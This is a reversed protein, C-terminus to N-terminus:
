WPTTRRGCWPAAASASSSGPTPRRPLAQGTLQLVAGHPASLQCARATLHAAHGLWIASPQDLAGGVQADELAVRADPRLWVGAADVATLTTRLAAASTGPGLVLRGSWRLDVLTAHGSVEHVNAALAAGPDGRRVVPRTLRVTEARYVGPALVVSTVTSRRIAEQLTAAAYRLGRGVKLEVINVGRSAGPCPDRRGVRTVAFGFGDLEAPTM